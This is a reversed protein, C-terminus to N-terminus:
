KPSGTGEAETPGEADVAERAALITARMPELYLRELREAGVLSEDPAKAELIKLLGDMEAILKLAAPRDKTDKLWIRKSKNRDPLNFLKKLAILKDDYARATEVQSAGFVTAYIAGRTREWDHGEPDWAWIGMVGTLYEEAWAGGWLLVMDTHERAQRLDEYQPEGWGLSLPMVEHYPRKGKPRFSRGYAYHLFGGEPRPWNHSWGPLSKLGIGKAAKLDEACPPRTFFWQADCFDKLPAAARNWETKIFQYSGSPPTTAIKRGTMNHKKGFEIIQAILVPADVGEGRDDFSLWLGDVGLDILEQFKKVVKDFDAPKEACQVTGYIFMGRRHAEDILQKAVPKDIKSFWAYGLGTRRVDLWNIRSRTYADFTGERLHIDVNTPRGRWPITPWDRVSAVPFVVRDGERRLLDFFAEQGYIVGRANSGGVLVVRKGADELIEIVFGDPGPSKESLEIRNKGCLADLTANTERQGLLVVQKLDAPKKAGVFIPLKRKFRLEILGQLREAAFREPETAQAGIVIAADGPKLLEATKGSDHYVKPTFMIPCATKEQAGEGAARVDAVAMVIALCLVVPVADMWRM